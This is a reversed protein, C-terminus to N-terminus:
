ANKQPLKNLITEIYLLENNIVEKLINRIEKTTKNKTGANRGGTKIGIAM